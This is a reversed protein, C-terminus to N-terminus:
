QGGSSSSSASQNKVAIYEEVSLAGDKNADGYQFADAMSKRWAKPLEEKTIKYSRDYRAEVYAARLLKFRRQQEKTSVPFVKVFGPHQSASWRLLKELDHTKPKYNTFVLISAYLFCETAQHLDFAAIKYDETYHKREQNM